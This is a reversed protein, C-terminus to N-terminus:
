AILPEPFARASSIGAYEKSPMEESSEVVNPKRAFIWLHWGWRSALRDEVARPLLKGIGPIWNPNWFTVETEVDKFQEFMRTASAKSFAQSLPNDPGDTNRNLMNQMELYSAPDARVLDAHRRLEGGVRAM